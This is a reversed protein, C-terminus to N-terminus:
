DIKLLGYDVTIYM